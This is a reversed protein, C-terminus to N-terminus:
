LGQKDKTAEVIRSREIDQPVANWNALTSCGYKSLSGM